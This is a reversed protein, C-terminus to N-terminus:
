ESVKKTPASIPYQTVVVEVRIPTSKDSGATELASVAAVVGPDALSEAVSALMNPDSISDLPATVVKNYDEGSTGVSTLFGGLQAEYVTRKGDAYVSGRSMASEMTSMAM